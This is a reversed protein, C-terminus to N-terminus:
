SNIELSRILGFLRHALKSFKHLNIWEKIKKDSSNISNNDLLFIIGDAIDQSTFGPLRHVVEAVDDFISSPTVAVPTGSAIGQRVAGSASENSSQYPFVVLDTKSLSLLTEKHSVFSHNLSVISDLGLQTILTQLEQSLQISLESPYLACYLTLKVNYNRNRIIKIANILEILGKNPLCFGYTSIHIEKGKSYKKNVLKRDFDLVGHPFLSVNSVLNMEKLRNLDAPTHVLIRDCISLESLILHLCKDSQNPPEVTSHMFLIIKINKSHLKNILEKLALFNYFGFNFQIVLSTLKCNLIFEYLKELDDEGLSWCREVNTSDSEFEISENDPAIIMLDNQIHEVLHRSYTAIGCRSNWTTVWGIRPLKIFSSLLLKHSFDINKQAVSKWTFNAITKRAIETKKQLVEQPLEYVEKMIKSLSTISPRAWVSSFLRLHNNSYEFSFDILWSNSINCFDTQGGWATTIVPVGLRMGEAVTLNFGEGHSPAVIANSALYLSQIESLSLEKDLILVQPPSSSKKNFENLINHVKNHPNEFTKIILIVDDHATFSQFYAAFLTEIGKRPFCSSIHLFSFKNNPLTFNTTAQIQDIHDVGLGCVSIPIYVGNDILIKKVENSMVTIGTLYSNFSDVWAYPFASEEWGYAHLLNIVGDVDNVRPPYLNRTCIFFRENCPISKKYLNNIVPNKELFYPDPDYDGPGETCFLAVNQGLENMALAFNSNLIALSYYSDFPGEIHWTFKDKNKVRRLLEIKKSQSNIISIASALSKLYDTQSNIKDKVLPSKALNRILFEYQNQLLKIFGINNATLSNNKNIIINLAAITKKSTSNWSFYKKRELSNFSIMQYFKENTLSKYILSAIDKSDYPDFLFEKYGILEPLSTLNSAIVPAGCNMAELVPLGFGEHLSPFIFLYCNRYLNALEIDNVYGLFVVYEQPLRFSFLWERILLIEEDAYPGTLVLKHKSILDVPLSAYAEILRFLNKRPDTAGCYLLFRGLYKVDIRSDQNSTSFTKQNCASSINFILNPNIALHQKVENSSSDSITLFGDLNSLDKIKNLYFLKYEPDIDLYEKDLILPILDYVISVIPPLKYSKDQSTLTNDRFGDFFSTILIIDANIISLAYSRIQISLWFKSYKGLYLDNIDGVTPCEFYIVNLKKNNLEDSFDDRLASLASNTFLIYENEPHYHILSKTIELCYRGIGRKRNGDRQMGQLDIIIKM